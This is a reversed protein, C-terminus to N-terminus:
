SNKCILQNTAFELSPNDKRFAYAILGSFINSLFNFQSRHRTNDILLIKKLINIVSEVLGRKSLIIKEEVDLLRKKMNKRVKTVVKINRSLLKEFLDKNLMYGKDGFIKGEINETLCELVNKNNDSVNGRTVCFNVIEGEPGIIIHVKFGFFWGVSTKGKKASKKFTKNSNSRRVNCVPLSFSDVFFIGSCKKSNLVKAFIALPLAIKQKLEIFRNYSVLKRFCDKMTTLVHRVYYGKFTHYGSYHYYIAITMIESMSLRCERNRKNEGDTLINKGVEREFEKCFNDVHYFLETIM